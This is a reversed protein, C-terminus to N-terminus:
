KKNRFYSVPNAKECGEKECIECSTMPYKESSHHRKVCAECNKYLDCNVNTCPCNASDYLM